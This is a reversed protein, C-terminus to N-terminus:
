QEGRASSLQPLCYVQPLLVFLRIDIFGLVSIDDDWTLIADDCSPRLCCVCEATYLRKWSSEKGIIIGVPLGSGQIAMM